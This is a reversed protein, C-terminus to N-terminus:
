VLYPQASDGVSSMPDEYCGVLHRSPAGVETHPNSPPTRGWTGFLIEPQSLPPRTRVRALPVRDPMGVQGACRDRGQHEPQGELAALSFRPFLAGACPRRLAPCGCSHRECPGALHSRLPSRARTHAGGVVTQACTNGYLPEFALCGPLGSQVALLPATIVPLPLGASLLICFKLM